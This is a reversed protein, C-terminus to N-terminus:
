TGGQCVTCRPVYLIQVQSLYISIQRHKVKRSFFIAKSLQNKKVNIYNILKYFVLYFTLFIFVYTAKSNCKNKRVMEM